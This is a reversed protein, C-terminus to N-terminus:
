IPTTEKRRPPLPPRGERLAPLARELFDVREELQQIQIDRQQIGEALAELKELDGSAISQGSRLRAAFAAIVKFLGAGVAVSVTISLMAGFLDLISSDM